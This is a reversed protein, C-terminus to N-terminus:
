WPMSFQGHNSCRLHGVDNEDLMLLGEHAKGGLGRKFILKMLRWEPQEFTIDGLGSWDAMKTDLDVVVEDLRSGNMMYLSRLAVFLTKKSASGVRYKADGLLKLHYAFEFVEYLGQVCLRHLSSIDIQTESYDLCELLM